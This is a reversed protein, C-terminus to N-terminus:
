TVNASTIVGSDTGAVGLRVYFMPSSGGPGRIDIGWKLLGDEVDTVYFTYYFVGAGGAGTWKTVKDAKYIEFILRGYPSLQRDAKFTVTKYVYQYTPPDPPGLPFGWGDSSEILQSSWTTKTQLVKKGVFQTSKLQQIDREARDILNVLKVDRIAYSGM